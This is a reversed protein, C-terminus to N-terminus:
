RNTALAIGRGLPTADEDSLERNTLFWIANCVADSIDKKGNPRPHDVRKKGTPTTEVLLNDVERELHEDYVVTLPFPGQGIDLELWRDFDQANTIHKIVDLGLKTEMKEILEVYMWTDFVMAYVNLRYVVDELFTWVDEPSIYGQGQEKEIGRAGDVVLGEKGLYATAVGFSDKRAAPDISLVRPIYEDTDRYQLNKLVNVRERDYHLGEPFQVGGGASPQCAFDRWFRAMDYKCEERLDAELIKPNVEWTPYICAYTNPTNQSTRYLQMIIDNHSQPSSIAVVKGHLGFTATSNSLRTYIEFAGRKGETKEFLALEDFVVCKNSRGVATTAWSGLVQMHCHKDLADIREEKFNLNFWQNFWDNNEMNNRCNAFIGDQALQKSTAVATIFIEQNKLLDFHAAPDQLSILEFFEYIAMVSALVTKGSNHSLIGNAVYCHGNPVYLDYMPVTENSIEISKVRLFLKNDHLLYDTTNDSTKLNNIVYSKRMNTIKNGISADITQATRHLYQKVFKSSVPIAPKRSKRNQLFNICNNIMNSKRSSRFGIKDKFIKIYDGHIRVSYCDHDFKEGGTGFRRSKTISISSLIGLELLLLQIQHALKKSVTYCAVVCKRGNSQISVTGDGEFYASLFAVKRDQTSRWIISPIEKTYADSYGIGIVHFFKSIWAHKTYITFSTNYEYQIDYGFEDTILKIFEDCTEKEGNTFDLKYDTTITGEAILYGMITAQNITFESPITYNKTGKYYINKINELESLTYDNNGVNSVGIDVEVYNNLTLENFSKWEFKSTGDWTYVKHETSGSLTYGYETTITSLQKNGCYCCGEVNVWGTQNYVKLGSVPILHQKPSNKPVIEDLRMYGNNTLILTDGPSTRMGCGSIFRKNIPLSPDYKHQYFNILMEEQKPFLEINLINKVFWAPDNRSRIIDKMYSIYDKGTLTEGSNIEYTGDEDVIADRLNKSLRTRTHSGKGAM